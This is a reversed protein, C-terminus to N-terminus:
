CTEKAGVLGESPLAFCAVPERLGKLALDGRPEADTLGAAIAIRRTILIEGSRAEACLRAAQNVSTGIAAYDRRGEFGITGLTAFGHAIGIGIGLRHGQADWEACLGGVGRRLDRALRVARASPDPCPVPDNFLVMLGDGLFRELTGGHAEIAPGAIGHYRSLVAMVEEPEAVEAFATFGRLDCFLVSVERRHSQLLGDDGSAIIMEAVERPLFRRLRSWREIEGVQAAVRAELDRNLAALEDAQAALRRAQEDVRDHLAKARLLSRVRAVLAAQDIPKTLYDDAGADLGAIVDRADSKATVLVIPVYPLAPDGRLRRAVEMGDMGPMMVDLLILDPPSTAVQELAELGDRATAVAYGHSALRTELIDVNAENDDVVLILPPERM